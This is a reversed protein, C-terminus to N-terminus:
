AWSGGLIARPIRSVSANHEGLRAPLRRLVLAFAVLTVTEVLVQTLALDPAGSTAFLAVMGLGTVSVLVVGTYRKRAMVAFIGAVIMIPAAVLQTQNHWLSLNLREVDTALLATIEAAVVVIFITGVYVPLSGRQTLTTTFVSLRDVGRMVAFYVDAATFRLIRPRRDWGTRVTLLFLGLGLLVSLISLGLAPEFGHWLALHGPRPPYRRAPPRPRSRM